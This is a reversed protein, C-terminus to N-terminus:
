EVNRQEGNPLDLNYLMEFTVGRFGIVPEDGQICYCVRATCGFWCLDVTLIATVVLIANRLYRANLVIKNNNIRVQLPEVLM